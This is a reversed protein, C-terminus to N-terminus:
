KQKYSGKLLENFCGRTAKINMSIAEYTVDKDSTVIMIYTSNTFGEVYAKFKENEVELSEFKYHTKICSLKFQKIINSIKEFRHLDNHTKHEYHSIVLFTQREFLIIEDANLAECLVRLKNKSEDINPLLYSVIKSWAGYLTEDWISTKFCNVIFRGAVKEEIEQRKQEFTAERVTLNLLDM